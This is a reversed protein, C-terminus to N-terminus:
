LRIESPQKNFGEVPTQVLNKANGFDINIKKELACLSDINKRFSSKKIIDELTLERSNKNKNNSIM